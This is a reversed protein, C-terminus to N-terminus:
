QALYRSVALSTFSNAIGVTVIRGQSDIAVGMFGQTGAPVTNTVTGGAGFTPDLAGNPTLRAIGNVLTSGSQSETSQNGVLVIDGNSQVAVASPVAEIGSGGAGAFPFPPNNFTSDTSGNV